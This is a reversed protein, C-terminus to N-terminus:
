LKEKFDQVITGKPVHIEIDDIDEIKQPILIWNKWKNKNVIEVFKWKTIYPHQEEDEIIVSNKSSVDDLKYSENKGYKVYYSYRYDNNITGCGIVFSGTLTTEKNIGYIRTKIITEKKDAIGWLTSDLAVMIITAVSLYVITFFVFGVIRAMLTENWILTSFGALVLAIIILDLFLTGM